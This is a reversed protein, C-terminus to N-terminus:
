VIQSQEQSGQQSFGRQEPRPPRPHPPWPHPPWPHPSGPRHVQPPDLDTPMYVRAIDVRRQVDVAALNLDTGMKFQVVVIATGEQANASLEDLHDIGSMQDEIPKIVMREMDQPSAGPYSAFVAVVPFDTNPPSSSRGLQVFSIIGFIVMAGFIAITITPRSLAFRTLWM